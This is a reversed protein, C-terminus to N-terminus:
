LWQGTVLRKIGWFVLTTGLSVLFPIVFSRVFFQWVEDSRREFYTLGEATLSLYYIRNDAYNLRLLGLSALKELKEELNAVGSIDSPELIQGPHADRADHILRMLRNRQKRSIDM